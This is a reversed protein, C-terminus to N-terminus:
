KVKKLNKKLILAWFVTRHYKALMEHVQWDQLFMHQAIDDNRSVSSFVTSSQPLSLFSYLEKNFNTVIASGSLAKPNYV